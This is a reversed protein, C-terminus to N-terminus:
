IKKWDRITGHVVLNVAWPVIRREPEMKRTRELGEIIESVWADFDEVTRANALPFSGVIGSKCAEIVLEPSSVLFMPAMIVPLELQSAIM